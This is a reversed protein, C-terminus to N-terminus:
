TVPMAGLPVAPGSMQLAVIGILAEAVSRSNVTLHGSHVAAQLVAPYPPLPERSASQHSEGEHDGAENALWSLPAAAESRMRILADKDTTM